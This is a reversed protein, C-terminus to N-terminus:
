IAPAVGNPYKAPFNRPTSLKFSEMSRDARPLEIALSQGPREYRNM